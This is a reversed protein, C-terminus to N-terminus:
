QTSRVAALLREAREQSGVVIVRQGEGLSIFGGVEATSGVLVAAPITYVILPAGGGDAGTVTWIVDGNEQVVASGLPANSGRVGISATM